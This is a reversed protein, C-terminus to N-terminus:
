LVCADGRSTGRVIRSGDESAGRSRFFLFVRRVREVDTTAGICKLTGRALEPKLLNAADMAGETKGAGVLMHVEDVFLIHKPDQSLEAIVAKLRAEFAGRAAAGAMLRGLDLAWIRSNRLPEPVDGELIRLALGEVIATKGVGPPGTLVPNNKKRRSLVQITRRIEDDRGIVPDIAGHEAAEVLDTAYLQLADYTEAPEESKADRADRAADRAATRFGEVTAKSNKCARELPATSLLAALLHAITGADRKRTAREARDRPIAVDRGAATGRGSGGGAGGFVTPGCRARGRSRGNSPTSSGTREVGEIIKAAGYHPRRGRAPCLLLRRARTGSPSRPGRGGDSSEDGFAKKESLVAKYVSKVRPSEPPDDDDQDKRRPLKRLEKKLEANLLAVDGGAKKFVRSSFTNPDSFLACAIHHPEVSAHRRQKALDRAVQVAELAKPTLLLEQQAAALRAVAFVHAVVCAIRPRMAAHPQPPASCPRQAAISCCRHFKVLPARKM